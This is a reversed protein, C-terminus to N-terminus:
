GNTFFDVMDNDVIFTKGKDDNLTVAPVPASSLLAAREDLFSSQQRYGVSKLANTDDALM